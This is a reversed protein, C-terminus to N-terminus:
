LVSCNSCDIPHFSYELQTHIFLILGIPQNLPKVENGKHACFGCKAKLCDMCNWSKANGDTIYVPCTNNGGFHSSEIQSVTPAHIAAQFFVVALAVLCSSLGFMSVIMLRRRGYKDVFAMSVISGLANLGSTVLSLALATSKSAFGAFQVITPSYYMVTNIGVFQQAVQVTVGAYLGRRVIKNGFAGKLRSIMDKGILGEEAKENEVSQKLLNVEEEVQDAPYIKELIARAEDVKNQIQPPPFPWFCKLLQM